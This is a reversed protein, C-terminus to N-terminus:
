ATIASDDSHGSAGKALPDRGVSASAAEALSGESAQDASALRPERLHFSADTGNVAERHDEIDGSHQADLGLVQDASRPLIRRVTFWGDLSKVLNTGVERAIFVQQGRIRPFGDVQRTQAGLDGTRVLAVLGRPVVLRDSLERGHQDANVARVAAYERTRHGFEGKAVHRRVNDGGLQQGLDPRRVKGEERCVASRVACHLGTGRHSSPHRCVLNDAGEEASIAGVIGLM